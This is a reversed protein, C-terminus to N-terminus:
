KSKEYVELFRIGDGLIKEIRNYADFEAPLRARERELNERARALDVREQAFRNREEALQIRDNSLIEGERQIREGERKNLTELYQAVSTSRDLEAQTKAIGLQGTLLCVTFGSAFLFVVLCVHAIIKTKVNM